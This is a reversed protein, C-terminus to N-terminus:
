EISEPKYVAQLAIGFKKPDKETALYGLTERVASLVDYPKNDKSLKGKLEEYKKKADEAMKELGMGVADHGEKKSKNLSLIAAREALSEAIDVLGSDKIGLKEQRKVESEKATKKKREVYEKQGEKEAIQILKGEQETKAEFNEGAEKYAKLTSEVTKQFAYHGLLARKDEDSTSSIIAKTAALKELDGQDLRGIVEDSYDYLYNAADRVYRNSLDSATRQIDEDSLNEPQVDDALAGTEKLAKYAEQRSMERCEDAVKGAPHKNARELIVDLNEKKGLNERIGKLRDIEAM